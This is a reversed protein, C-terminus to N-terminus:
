YCVKKILNENQEILNFCLFYKATRLACDMRTVEYLKSILLTCQRLKDVSSLNVNGLISVLENTSEALVRASLYDKNIEAFRVKFDFVSM